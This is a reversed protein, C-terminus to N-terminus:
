TCISFNPSNEECLCSWSWIWCNQNPTDFKSIRWASASNSLSCMGSAFNQTSLILVSDVGAAWVLLEIIPDPEKIFLFFFFTTSMMWVWRSTTWLQDPNVNRLPQCCNVNSWSWRSSVSKLYLDIAEWPINPNIQKFHKKKGWLSGLILEFFCTKM